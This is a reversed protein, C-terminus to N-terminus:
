RVYFLFYTLTFFTITILLLLFLLPDERSKRLLIRIERQLQSLGGAFIIGRDFNSSFRDWLFNTEDQNESRLDFMKM